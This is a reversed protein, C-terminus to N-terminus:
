DSLQPWSKPVGHVTAWWVGRGIPNELCSYQFPNGHGERPSSGSGLISGLYGANCAFDKGASGGSYDRIIYVYIRVYTYM